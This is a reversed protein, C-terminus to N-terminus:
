GLAKKAQDIKAQGRVLKLGWTDTKMHCEKCLTRGNDISYRLEPYLAWPKIHDAELKGGRKNCTLCTYDDRIFVAARWLIYEKQQMLLRRGITKGGKSNPNREGRMGFGFGIPKPKGKNANRIKEIREETHKKGLHSKRLNERHEKTLSRGKTWPIHGKQFNGKKNTHDYVGTPM